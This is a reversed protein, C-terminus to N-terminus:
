STMGRTGAATDLRLPQRTFITLGEVSPKVSPTLLSVMYGTVVCAAVGIAAYLFFHVPTHRQVLYLVGASAVLGALAGPANARRTFIGLAFVGALGSGFLGVSQLFMDWLSQVDWTALLAASATGGAGVLLTIRKALRTRVPEPAAPRFRAYFDVVVTTAISNMSSSLTSMAAAFVGSVVLGSIGPPLQQGIFWAFVSDTPVTPNLLAPHERYFVFLATGVGFFLVSTPASLLAGTWVARAAQREDKTTLYRQVVAQDATYPVLHIFLSGIVVVWVSEMTADWTWNFMHFKGAERGIEIVRSFGGDVGLVILVLSAVAGGLLVVVQAVDTWIVARMGGHTTYVTCVLGMLLISLYVDIGTVAALALAPLFMVITLRASQLVVFSVSGALRVALNFRRELYEYATTV